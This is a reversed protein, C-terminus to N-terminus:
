IFVMTKPSLSFTSWIASAVLATASARAASPAHPFTSSGATISASSVASFFHRRDL